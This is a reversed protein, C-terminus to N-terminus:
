LFDWIEFSNTDVPIYGKLQWLRSIDYQFKQGKYPGPDQPPYRLADRSMIRQTVLVYFCIMATLPNFHFLTCKENLKRTHFYHLKLAM